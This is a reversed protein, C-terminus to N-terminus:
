TIGANPRWHEAVGGVATPPFLFPEASVFGRGSLAAVELAPSRERGKIELLPSVAMAMAMSLCPCAERIVAVLQESSLALTKM